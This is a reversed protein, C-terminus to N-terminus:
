REKMFKFSYKNSYSVRDHVVATGTRLHHKVACRPMSTQNNRLSFDARLCFSASSLTVQYQTSTAHLTIHLDVPLPSEHNVPSVNQVFSFYGMIRSSRASHIYIIYAM